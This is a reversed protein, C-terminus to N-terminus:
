RWGSGTAIDSPDPGEYVNYQLYGAAQIGCAASSTPMPTVRGMYDHCTALRHRFASGEPSVSEVISRVNFDNSNNYYYYYYRYGAAVGRSHLMTWNCGYCNRKYIRWLVVGSIGCLFGAAALVDNRSWTSDDWLKRFRYGGGQNLARNSSGYNEAFAYKNVTTATCSTEAELAPLPSTEILARDARAEVALGPWNKAEVSRRSAQRLSDPVDANPDIARFLAEASGSSAMLEPVIRRQGPPIEEAIFFAGPDAEVFTVVNGLAHRVIALPTLVEIPGAALDLSSEDDNLNGEAPPAGIKAPYAVEGTANASCGVASLIGYLLSLAFCRRGGYAVSAITQHNM